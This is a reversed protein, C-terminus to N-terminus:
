AKTILGNSVVYAPHSVVFLDRCEKAIIFANKAALHSSSGRRDTDYDRAELEDRTAMYTQNLNFAEISNKVYNIFGTVKLM